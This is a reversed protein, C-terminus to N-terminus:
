KTYEPHVTYLRDTKNDSILLHYGVIGEAEEKSLQAMMHDQLIQKAEEMTFTITKVKNNDRVIEM